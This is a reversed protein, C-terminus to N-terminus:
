FFVNPMETTPCPTHFPIKGSNWDKLVLRAADDIDPIGKKMLRGRKRAINALMEQTTEYDDIKYLEKMVDKTIRKAIADVPTIPDPLDEIKIVNRLMISDSTESTLIVGPCDLLRVNKDLYIEQVAKTHGPVNSVSAVKIKKLSNILSSKGVNPFGVVGVTISTKVDGQRCYNKILQMLEDAGVTKNSSVVKKYLDADEKIM